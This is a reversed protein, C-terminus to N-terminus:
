MRVCVVLWIGGGREGNSNNDGTERNEGWTGDSRRYVGQCMPEAGGKPDMGTRTYMTCLGVEKRRILAYGPRRPEVFGAAAIPDAYGGGEGREGERCEILPTLRRRSKLGGVSRLKEMERFSFSIRPNCASYQVQVFVLLL